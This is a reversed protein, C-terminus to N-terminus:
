FVALRDPSARLETSPIQNPRLVLDLPLTALPRLGRTGSWGGKAGVPSAAMVELGISCM